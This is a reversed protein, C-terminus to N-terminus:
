NEDPEDIRNALQLTNGYAYKAEIDNLLHLRDVVSSYFGDSRVCLPVSIHVKDACIGIHGMPFKEYYSEYGWEEVNAFERCRSLFEWFSVKSLNIGEIIKKCQDIRIYRNNGRSDVEEAYSFFSQHQPFIPISVRSSQRQQCRIESSQEEVFIQVNALTTPTPNTVFAQLLLTQKETFIQISNM